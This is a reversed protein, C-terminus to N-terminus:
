SVREPLLLGRRQPAIMRCAQTSFGWSTKSAKQFIDPPDLRTVIGSPGHFRQRAINLGPKADPYMGSAADALVTGVYCEGGHM